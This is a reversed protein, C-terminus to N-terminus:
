GNNKAVMVTGDSLLLMLNSTGPAAHALPTWTGAHASQTPFVAGIAILLLGTLGAFSPFRARNSNM